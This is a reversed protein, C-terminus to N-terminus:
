RVFIYLNRGSLACSRHQSHSDSESIVISTITYDARTFLSCVNSIFVLYTEVPVRKSDPKNVPLSFVLKLLM